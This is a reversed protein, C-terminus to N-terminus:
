HLFFTVSCEKVSTDKLRQLLTGRPERDTRECCSHLLMELQNCWCVRQLACSSTLHRKMVNSQCKLCRARGDAEKQDAVKKVGDTLRWPNFSSLCHSPACNSKCRPTSNIFHFQFSSTTPCLLKNLPLSSESFQEVSLSLLDKRGPAM